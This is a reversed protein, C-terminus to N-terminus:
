IVGLGELKEGPAVGEEGASGITFVEVGGGAQIAWDPEDDAGADLPPCLVGGTDIPLLAPAKVGACEVAFLVGAGSELLMGPLPEKAGACDGGVVGGGINTGADGGVDVLCRLHSSKLKIARRRM